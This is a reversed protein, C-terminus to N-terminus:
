TSKSKDWWVAADLSQGTTDGPAAYSLLSPLQIKSTDIKPNSNTDDINNSLGYPIGHVFPITFCIIRSSIFYYVNKPLLSSISSHIIISIDRNPIIEVSRIYIYVQKSLCEDRRREKHRENNEVPWNALIDLRRTEEQSRPLSREWTILQDAESLPGDTRFSRRDRAWLNNPM